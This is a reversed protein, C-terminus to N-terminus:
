FLKKFLKEAKKCVEDDLLYKTFRGNQVSLILGAKKLEKVHQSITSQSLPIADEFDHFDAVKQDVLIKIIEIRAPHGLAKAYKALLITKESGIEMM